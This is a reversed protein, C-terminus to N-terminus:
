GQQDIRGVDLEPGAAQQARAAVVICAHQRARDAYQSALAITTEECRFQGFAQHRQHRRERALGAEICGEIREVREGDVRAITEVAHALQWQRMQAFAEIREVEVLGVGIAGAQGEDGFRIMKSECAEITETTRQPQQGAGRAGPLVHLGIRSAVVDHEFRDASIARVIVLEADEFPLQRASQGDLLDEGDVGRGAVTLVV